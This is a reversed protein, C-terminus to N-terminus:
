KMLDVVGAVFPLQYLVSHEVELATGFWADEAGAGPIGGFMNELQWTAIWPLLHRLRTKGWLRYLVATILLFRYELCNSPQEPNKSLAHAKSPLATSPWPQGQELRNLLDALPEFAIVPFLSFDSYTWHDFGPATHGAIKVTNYLDAGTLPQAQFKPGRFLFYAYQLFYQTVTTAHDSSNGDYIPKWAKRLEHDVDDPHTIFTGDPKLVATLSPAASKKIRQFAKRDHPVAIHYCQAVQFKYNADARHM